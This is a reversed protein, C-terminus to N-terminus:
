DLTSWFQDKSLRSIMRKRRERTEIKAVQKPEIRAALVKVRDNWKSRENVFIATRVPYRSRPVPMAAM